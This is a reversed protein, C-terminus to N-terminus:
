KRNEPEVYFPHFEGFKFLESSDGKGIRYVFQYPFINFGSGNPKYKFYFRGNRDQNINSFTDTVTLNRNMKGIILKANGKLAIGFDIYGSYYEGQGITDRAHIFPTEGGPLPKNYRDYGTVLVLRGLRDYVHLEFPRGAKDYLISSDMFTGNQYHLQRKKAGNSFYLRSIGEPKNSVWNSQEKLQGNPYYIVTPGHQLGKHWSIKSRVKGNEYFFTTIGEQKNGQKSILAKLLHNPYYIEEVHSNNDACGFCFFLTFFITVRNNNNKTSYFYYDKM